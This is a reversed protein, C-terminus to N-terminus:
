GRQDTRIVPGFVPTVDGRKGTDFEEFNQVRVPFRGDWAAQPPIHERTLPSQIGCLRCSGMRDTPLM